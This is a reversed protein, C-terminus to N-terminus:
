PLTQEVHQTLQRRVDPLLGSTRAGAARRHGGGGFSQAIAAVDIDPDGEEQPPKSRFNVRVIGDGQDVFLISVVVSGIRLPENVIGETDAPTAGTNDFAASTLTMLALRDDALLELSNLAAALLRLRRPPDRQFLQMYLEHSRVGQAILEGAAALVRHPDIGAEKLEHWAAQTYNTEAILQKCQQIIDARQNAKLRENEDLMRATRAIRAEQEVLATDGINQHTSQPGPHTAGSKLPAPSYL